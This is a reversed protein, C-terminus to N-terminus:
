LASPSLLCDWSLRMTVLVRTLAFYSHCLADQQRPCFYPLLRVYYHALRDTSLARACCSPWWLNGDERCFLLLARGRPFFELALSLLRDGRSLALSRWTERFIPGKGLQSSAFVLVWRSLTNSTAQSLVCVQRLVIANGGLCGRPTLVQPPVCDNQALLSLTNM